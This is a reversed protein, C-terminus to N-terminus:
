ELAKILLPHLHHWLATLAPVTAAKGVTEIAFRIMGPKREAKPTAVQATLFSLQELIADREHQQLQAGALLEQSFDALSKTLALESGGFKTKEISVSVQEAHGTNIAGVLSGDQVTINHINTVKSEGRRHMGVTGELELMQIERNMKMKLANARRAAERLVPGYAGANGASRTRMALLPGNVYQRAQLSISTGDICGNLKDSLERLRPPLLLEPVKVALAKWYAFLKEVVVETSAFIIDMERQPRGGSDGIRQLANVDTERQMAAEELISHYKINWSRRAAHITLPKPEEMPARTGSGSDLVQPAPARKQRTNLYNAWNAFGETQVVKDLAAHHPIGTERTLAKARRKLVDPRHNAIREM